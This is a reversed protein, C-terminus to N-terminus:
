SAGGIGADRALVIAQARTRVGLKTFISSVQNRVTKESKALADAITGNDLGRAVLALVEHESTTLGSQRLLAPISGANGV